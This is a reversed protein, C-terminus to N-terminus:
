VWDGCEGPLPARPLQEIETQKVHFNVRREKSIYLPHGRLSSYDLEQFSFRKAHSDWYDYKAAALDRETVGFRTAEHELQLGIRDASAHIDDINRRMLVVFIDPPPDDILDKIMSPSQVVVGSQLLLVERWFSNRTFPLNSQYDGEDVYRHGTDLSIMKSAITTGSRHPGTVVIRPHIAWSEFM